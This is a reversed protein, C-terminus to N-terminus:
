SLSRPHLWSASSNKIVFISVWLLCCSFYGFYTTYYLIFHCKTCTGSTFRHRSSFYHPFQPCQVKNRMVASLDTVLLEACLMSHESSGSSMTIVLNCVSCDEPNPHRKFFHWSKYSISLLSCSHKVVVLELVQAPEALSVYGVGPLFGASWVLLKLLGWLLIYSSNM